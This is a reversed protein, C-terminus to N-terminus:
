QDLFMHCRKCAVANCEPDDENVFYPKHGFIKCVYPMVLDNWYEKRNRWVHRFLLHRVDKRLENWTHPSRAVCAM